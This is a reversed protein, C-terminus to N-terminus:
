IVSGHYFSKIVVRPFWQGFSRVVIRHTLDKQRPTQNQRFGNKPLRREGNLRTKRKLMGKITKNQFAPQNTRLDDFVEEADEDAKRGDKPGPLSFMRLCLNLHSIAGDQSDAAFCMGRNSLFVCSFLLLFAM